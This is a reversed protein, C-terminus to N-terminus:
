HAIFGANRFHVQRLDIRSTTLSQFSSCLPLSRDCGSLRMPLLFPNNNREMSRKLPWANAGITLDATSQTQAFKTTALSQTSPFRSALRYNHVVAPIRFAATIAPITTDCAVYWSKYERNPDPCTEWSAVHLGTEIGFFISSVTIIARNSPHRGVFPNTEPCAPCREGVLATSHGDLVFATVIVGEGVWWLWDTYWHKDKGVWRHQAQGVSCTLLLVLILSIVRTANAM